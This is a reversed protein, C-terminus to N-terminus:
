DVDFNAGLGQVDLNPIVVLSLYNTNAYFDPVNLVKTFQYNVVKKGDEDVEAYQTLGPYDGYNIGTGNKMADGLNLAKDAIIGDIFLGVYNSALQAFTIGPKLDFIAESFPQQFSSNTFGITAAQAIEDSTLLNESALYYVAEMIKIGDPNNVLAPDYQIIKAIFSNSFLMMQINTYNQLTTEDSWTTTIENFTNGLNEKIIFDVTVKFPEEGTTKIADLNTDGADVHPNIRDNTNLHQPLGTASNELTVNKIYVTPVITGFFSTDDSLLTM